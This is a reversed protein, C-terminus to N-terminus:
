TSTRFGRTGSDSLLGLARGSLWKSFFGSMHSKSRILRILPLWSLGTLTQHSPGGHIACSALLTESFRTGASVSGVQVWLSLSMFRRAKVSHAQQGPVLPLAM